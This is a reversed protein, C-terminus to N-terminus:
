LVKAWINNSQVFDPKISVHKATSCSRMYPSPIGGAWLENYIPAETVANTSMNAGPKSVLTTFHGFNAALGSDSWSYLSSLLFCFFGSEWGWFLLLAYVMCLTLLSYLVIILKGCLCKLVDKRLVLWQSLGHCYLHHCTQPARIWGTQTATSTLFFFFDEM